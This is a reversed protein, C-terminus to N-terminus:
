VVEQWGTSYEAETALTSLPVISIDGINSAYEATSSSEARVHERQEKRVARPQTM